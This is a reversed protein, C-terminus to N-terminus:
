PMKEAGITWYNCILCNIIDFHFLKFTVNVLSWLGKQMYKGKHLFLDAVVTNSKRNQASRLSCLTNKGRPWWGPPIQHLLWETKMFRMMSAPRIGIDTQELMVTLVGPNSEWACRRKKWNINSNPNSFFSFLCFSTSIPGMKLFLYTWNTEFHLYDSVKRRLKNKSGLMSRTEMGMNRVMDSMRAWKWQQLFNRVNM